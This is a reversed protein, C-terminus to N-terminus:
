FKSFHSLLNMKYEFKVLTGIAFANDMAPAFVFNGVGKDPRFCSGLGIKKTMFDFDRIVIGLPRELM